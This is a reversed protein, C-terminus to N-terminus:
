DSFMKTLHLDRKLFTSPTEGVIDKFDNIFHAQDFYNGELVLDQYDVDSRDKIKQMLYNLRVIRMLKKSSIGARRIFNRELTRKSVSCDLMIDKLLTTTGKEIIKDYLHDVEDPIYTTEQIQDIFSVFYSIREELSKLASLDNWVPYFINNPLNIIHGSESSLNIEFIRSFVTPKCIVVFTEMLGHCHLILSRSIIPTAFYPVLKIDNERLILPTDKFHFIISIDPRPIFREETFPENFHFTEFQRILWNQGFAAKYCELQFM